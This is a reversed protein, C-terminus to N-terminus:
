GNKRIRVYEIISEFIKKGDLSGLIDEMAREPHPMMGMINGSKNCIGAIYDMSGNPNSIDELEGNNNSYRFVIQNNKKLDELGEKSIFYNGEMHAIPIKLIDGKKLLNTFPTKVNDVRTHVHKCIFKLSKNMLLAGPLLKTETLIQFGNCIGILLGGDNAFSRIADMIPAFRAISGTRLYDGYSFGGPLVICDFKELNTDNHWIFEVNEDLVSKICFFADHDCNSGPFIVVGFKL